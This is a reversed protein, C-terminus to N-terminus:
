AGNGIRRIAQKSRWEEIRAEPLFWLRAVEESQSFSPFAPAHQQFYATLAACAKLAFAENFLPGLPFLPESACLSAYRLSVQCWGWM